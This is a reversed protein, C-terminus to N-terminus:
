SGRYTTYNYPGLLLPVHWHPKSDTEKLGDYGTTTFAIEVRPFFARIGKQSWYGSTEFKLICALDGSTQEFISFIDAGTSNAWGGVRGDGNTIGEMTVLQNGAFISLKVPINQAPLGITTDLVHCTIPPRNTAM